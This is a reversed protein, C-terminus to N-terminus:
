LITQDDAKEDFDDGYIDKLQKKADDLQTQINQKVAIADPRLTKLNLKERAVKYYDDVTELQAKLKILARVKNTVKLLGILHKTKVM